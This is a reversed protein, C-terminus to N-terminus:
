GIGPFQFGRIMWYGDEYVFSVEYNGQVLQDQQQAKIWYSIFSMVKGVKKEVDFNIHRIDLAKLEFERDCQFALILSTITANKYSRKRLNVHDALLFGNFQPDWRKDLLNRAFQESARELDYKHNPYFEEYIFHQMMGKISIDDIECEFLEETIFRYIVLDDYHCCCDLVIGKEEMLSTLGALAKSVAHGSLQDFKKIEPRGLADFVKIRKANKFQAEFDYINKLWANEVEPSLASTDHQQMGFEAALKLKLV